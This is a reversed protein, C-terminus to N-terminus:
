SVLQEVLERPFEEFKEHWSKLSVFIIGAFECKEQFSATPKDTDIERCHFNWDIGCKERFRAAKDDTDFQPDRLNLDIACRERFSM